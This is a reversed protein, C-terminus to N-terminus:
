KPVYPYQWGTLLRFILKRRVQVAYNLGVHNCFSNLIASHTWTRSIDVNFDGGAIVHCDCNSTILSETVPMHEAFDATVCEDNEDGEGEQHRSILLM